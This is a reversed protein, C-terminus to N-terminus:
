DGEYTSPGRREFNTMVRKEDEHLYKETVEVSHHGLADKLVYLNWGNEIAAMAFSHRLVHAHIAARERGDKITSKVEQIGANEAAKGVVRNFQLGSLKESYNTPFLYESDAYTVSKRYVSVWQNMLFDLNAQYGVVRSRGNKANEERVLVRRADFDVDDLKLGCLEKRRLGTQFALRILLENRVSPKPVNKALTDIEKPTLYPVDDKSDYQKEKEQKSIEQWKGLSVRDTPNEDIDISLRRSDLGLAEEFFESIAARRIRVSSASYGEDLMNAINDEIDASTAEFISEKPFDAEDTLWDRFNRCHREYETFTSDGKKRKLRKIVYREETSPWKNELVTM